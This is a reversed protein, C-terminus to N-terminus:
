RGGLPTWPTDPAFLPPAVLIQHAILRNMHQRRRSKACGCGSQIEVPSQNLLLLLLLLLLMLMLLLMLLLPPLLLILLLLLKLLWTAIM